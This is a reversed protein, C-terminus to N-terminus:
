ETNGNTSGTLLQAFVRARALVDASYDRNTTGQDIDHGVAAHYAAWLGCNYAAIAVRELLLRADGEFLPMTFTAVNGRSDVLNTIQGGRELIEARKRALIESGKLIGPGAFKWAGSRAFQADTRRDIQLIGYGHGNDGPRTLWEYRGPELERGGMNTERSALGMLVEVRHGHRDAAERFHELWGEKTARAFESSLSM